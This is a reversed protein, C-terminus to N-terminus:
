IYLISTLDQQVVPGVMLADNLSVGISKCSADFVVRLKSSRGTNKFVCHHPLYFSPSVENDPSCVLRMHGLLQYEKIFHTYQQKLSSDRALRKELGKLRKLAIDRSDGLKNLIQEQIPLRVIYRGRPDRDVSALFHQECSQEQLTYNNAGDVNNDLQWLRALQDHLQTNSIRAHFSHVKLSSRPSGGISGALIWGLRTKQLLPHDCSARIQGVCLLDWFVEAGILIDIDASVYFKPDALKINRPLKFSNENHFGTAQRDGPGCSYL